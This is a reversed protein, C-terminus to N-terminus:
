SASRPPRAPRRRSCRTRRRRRTSLSGSSRPPPSGLPRALASAVQGKEATTMEKPDAVIQSTQETMALTLGDSTTISGRLTPISITSTWRQAALTRYKSWQLGQMQILRGAFLSLVVAVVILAANLRHRPNSRRLM